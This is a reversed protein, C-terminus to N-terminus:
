RSASATVWAPRGPADAVARGLDLIFQAQQV